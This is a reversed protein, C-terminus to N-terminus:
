PAATVSIRVTQTRGTAVGGFFTFNQHRFLVGRLTRRSEGPLTIGGTALGTGINFTLSPRLAPSEFSIRNGASWSLAQTINSMLEGATANLQLIGNGNTGNLFGLARENAAPRSYTGGILNVPQSVGGPYYTSGPAPSRVFRNTSGHHYWDDLTGADVIRTNVSWFGTGGRLVRFIPLRFQGPVLAHALRRSFTFRTGDPALVTGRASGSAAITATVFGQVGAGATYYGAVPNPAAASFEAVKSFEVYTRTGTSDHTWLVDRIADIEIVLPPLIPGGRRSPRDFAARYYGEIDFLGRFRVTRAGMTLVATFANASTQTLSLFGRLGPDDSDGWVAQRTSRLASLHRIQLMVANAGPGVSGASYGDVAIRYVVGKTAHFAVNSLGHYYGKRILWYDDNVAVRELNALTTGQYVALVTNLVPNQTQGDLAALTDISVFGDEPATWRWWATRGAGAAGNPRHGPENVEATFSEINTAQSIGLSGSFNPASQFNNAGFDLSGLCVSWPIALLAALTRPGPTRFPRKMPRRILPNIPAPM